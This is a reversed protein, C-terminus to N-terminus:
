YLQKCARRCKLVNNNEATIPPARLRHIYLDATRRAIAGSFTGTVGGPEHAGSQVIVIKIHLELTSIYSAFTGAVIYHNSHPPSKFQTCRQVFHAHGHRRRISAYVSVACRIATNSKGTETRTTDSCCDSTSISSQYMNIVM